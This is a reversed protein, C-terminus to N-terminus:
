RKLQVTNDKLWSPNHEFAFRLNFKEPPRGIQEQEAIVHIEYRGAPTNRGDWTFVVEGLQLNNDPNSYVVKGNRLIELTPFKARNPTYFVFQYQGSPQGITVPLYIQQSDLNVSAIARLATPPINAKNLVYPNLSFTFPSQDGKLSLHDLLYNKDLSEVTVEPINNGLSPIQLTLPNPYSSIGSTALSILRLGRDINRPQIGECRNNDRRIYDTSEPNSSPPCATQASLPTLSFILVSTLFFKTNM